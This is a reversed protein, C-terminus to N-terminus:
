FMGFHEIKYFHPCEMINIEMEMPFDKTISAIHARDNNQAFLFRSDVGIAASVVQVELNVVIYQLANLQQSVTVLKSHNSYM